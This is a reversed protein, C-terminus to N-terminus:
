LSLASINSKVISRIVSEKGAAESMDKKLAIQNISWVIEYKKRVLLFNAQDTIM